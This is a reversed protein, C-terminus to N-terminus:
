LIGGPGETIHRLCQHLHMLLAGESTKILDTLLAEGGESCFIQKLRYDCVLHRLTMLALLALDQAQRNNRVFDMLQSIVGLSALKMHIVIEGFDVLDYLLLLCARKTETCESTLGKLIQSGSTELLHISCQWGIPEDSICAPKHNTPNSLPKTKLKTGKGTKAPEGDPQGKVGLADRVVDASGTSMQGLVQSLIKDREALTKAMESRSKHRNQRERAQASERLQKTEEPHLPQIICRLCEAAFAQIQPEECTVWPGVTRYVGEQFLRTRLKKHVEKEEDGIATQDEQEVKALTPTAKGTYGATRVNKKIRPVERQKSSSVPKAQERFLSKRLDFKIESELNHKKASSPRTKNTFKQSDGSPINSSQHHHSSLGEESVKREKKDGWAMRRQHIMNMRQERIENEQQRHTTINEIKYSTPFAQDVTKVYQYHGIPSEEKAALDKTWNHNEEIQSQVDKEVKCNWLEASCRCFLHVCELLQKVFQLEEPKPLPNALGPPSVMQWVKMMAQLHLVDVNRQQQQSYHVGTSPFLHLTYTNLLDLVCLAGQHLMFLIIDTNLKHVKGKSGVSSVRANHSSTRNRQSGVTMTAMNCLCSVADSLTKYLDVGPRFGVSKIKKSQDLSIKAEKHITEVLISILIRVGKKSRGSADKRRSALHGQEEKGQRRGAGEQEVSSDGSFAAETHLTVDRLQNPSSRQFTRTLTTICLERLRRCNTARLVQLLGKLKGDDLFASLGYDSSCLAQFFDAAKIQVACNEEKLAVAVHEMVRHELVGAVTHDTHQVLHSFLEALSEKMAPYRLWMEMIDEMCHDLLLVAIEFFRALNSLLRGLATKTEAAQNASSLSGILISLGRTIMRELWHDALKRHMVIKELVAAATSHSAAEMKDQLLSLLQPVINMQLLAKANQEDTAAQRLALFAAQKVQQNTSTSTLRVLQHLHTESIADGHCCAALNKIAGHQRASGKREQAVLMGIVDVLSVAEDDSDSDSDSSKTSTAPGTGNRYRHGRSPSLETVNGCSCRTNLKATLSSSHHPNVSADPRPDLSIEGLRDFIARLQLNEHSVSDKPRYLSEHDTSPRPPKQLRRGEVAGPPDM